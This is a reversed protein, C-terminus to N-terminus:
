ITAGCKWCSKESKSCATNGCQVCTHDNVPQAAVAPNNPKALTPANIGCSGWVTCSDNSFSLSHQVGLCFPSDLWDGKEEVAGDEGLFVAHYDESQIANHLTEFLIVADDSYTKISSWVLCHEDNDNVSHDDVSDLFEIVEKRQEDTLLSSQIKSVLDLWGPATYAVVVDERYGM